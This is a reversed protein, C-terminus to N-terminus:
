MAADSLFIGNEQADRQVMRRCASLAVPYDGFRRKMQTARNSVSQDGGGCSILWPLRACQQAPRSQGNKRNSPGLITWITSNIHAHLAGNEGGSSPRHWAVAPNKKNRFLFKRRLESDKELSIGFGEGLFKKKAQKKESVGVVRLSPINREGTTFFRKSPNKGVKADGIGSTTHHESESKRCGLSRQQGLRVEPWEM